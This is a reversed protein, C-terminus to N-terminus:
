VIYMVDLAFIMLLCVCVWVCGRVCVVCPKNGKWPLSELQTSGLESTSEQEGHAEQALQQLETNKNEREIERERERL